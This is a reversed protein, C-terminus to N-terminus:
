RARWVGALRGRLSDPVTSAYVVREIGASREAHIMGGEGDSIGLHLLGAERAAFHVLGVCDAGYPPLSAGQHYPTDV